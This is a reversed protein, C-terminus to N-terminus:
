IRQRMINLILTIYFFYKNSKYLLSTIIEVKQKTYYKTSNLIINPISMAYLRLKTRVNPFIYNHEETWMAM